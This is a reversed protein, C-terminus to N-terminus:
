PMITFYDGIMIMVVAEISFGLVGVFKLGRGKHLEYMLLWAFGFHQLCRGGVGLCAKIWVVRVDNCIYVNLNSPITRRKTM